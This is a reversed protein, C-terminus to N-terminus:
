GPVALNPWDASNRGAAQLAQLNFVCTHCRGCPRKLEEHHSRGRCSCCLRALERSLTQLMKGKTLKQAVLPMALEPNIRANNNISAWLARWLNPTVQWKGREVVQQHRLDEM